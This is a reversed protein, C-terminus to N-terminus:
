IPPPGYPNKGPSFTPTMLTHRYYEGRFDLREGTEWAHFIARLAAILETMRAVPKDFDAGFRKEIQTRIQTGLGLAFRGESLLQHDIAQHALHIPNRPFAIAVNTMLDLCGVTSALTLPAFVDNTGEFTFVGSAGAERYARAQEIANTPGFLATMVRVAHSGLRTVCVSTTTTPAPNAPRVAARSRTRSPYSTRTSSPRSRTPPREDVVVIAPVGTSRPPVNTPGVCSATIPRAFSSPQSITRVCLRPLFRIRHRPRTRDYRLVIGRSDIMSNTSTDRIWHPHSRTQRRTGTFSGHVDDIASM